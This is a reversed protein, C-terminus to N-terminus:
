KGDSGVAASHIAFRNGTQTIRYEIRWDKIRATQAAEDASFEITVTSVCRYEVTDDIRAEDCQIGSDSACGVFNDAAFCTKLLADGSRRIGDVLADTQAKTMTDSLVTSATM